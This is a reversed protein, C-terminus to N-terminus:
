DSLPTESKAFGHFQLGGLEETWPIRWAHIRSHTAMGKELVKEYVEIYIYIKKKQTERYQEQQDM